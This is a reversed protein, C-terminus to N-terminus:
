GACCDAAKGQLKKCKPFFFLASKGTELGGLQGGWQGPQAKM